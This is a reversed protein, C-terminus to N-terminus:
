KLKMGKVQNFIITDNDELNHKAGTLLTVVGKEENSIKKIMMEPTEEGNKDLVDFEEGLDVFLRAYPGTCDASIFKVKNKRCYNDVFVQTEYDSDTLIVM